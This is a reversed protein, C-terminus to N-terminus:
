SNHILDKWYKISLKPNKNELLEIKSIQKRLFDVTIDNWNEIFLIPFEKFQDLVPHYKVVPITKLYLCEWIRHCDIGNGPPSIVFVSKSIFNLYQEPTCRNAMLIKNKSTINDIEIREQINTDINFNKYVLYTKKNNKSINSLVQTNGHPYEKRAIGIPLSITKNDKIFNNQGFWKKIKRNALFPKYQQLIGFDSNHTILTFEHNIKDLNSLLYQTDHGYCYIIKPLLTNIANIQENILVDKPKDSKKRGHDGIIYNEIDFIFDGLQELSDGTVFEDEEWFYNGVIM